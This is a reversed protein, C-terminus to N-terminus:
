WIMNQCKYFNKKIVDGLVFIDVNYKDIDTVKQAMNYEPIVISVYRLDSVMQMREECNFVPTKGKSACMDDTSVGVILKDGLAACRKLLRLHGYHLLDFTGYTIVTKM